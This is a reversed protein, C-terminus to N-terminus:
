GSVHRARERQALEIGVKLLNQQSLEGLLARADAGDRLENALTVPDFHFHARARARDRAVRPPLSLLRVWEVGEDDFKLEVHPRASGMSDRVFSRRGSKILRDESVPQKREPTRSTNKRRLEARRIAQGPPVLKGVERIIEEVRHWERDDLLECVKMTLPSSPGGGSM